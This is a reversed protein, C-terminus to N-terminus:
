FNELTLGANRIGELYANTAGIMSETDTFRGELTSGLVVILIEDGTNAKEIVALNGGASDTYGTKSYLIKLDKETLPDTNKFTGTFGDSSTLTIEPTQTVTLIEPYKTSTYELAAGIDHASGVNSPIKNAEDLDLGSENVFVLSMWGHTKATDNMLNIFSPTGGYSQGQAEYKKQITEEVITRIATASDNSSAIMLIRLLDDAGWIEGALLGVDGEETLSKESITVQSPLFGSEKATILTIIKSLSALPLATQENKKFLVKKHPIDYVYGAKAQIFLSLFSNVVLAKRTEVEHEIVRNRAVGNAYILGLICTFLLVALLHSLPSEKM